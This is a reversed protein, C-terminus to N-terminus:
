RAIAARPQHRRLADLRQGAVALVATVIRMSPLVDRIDASVDGVDTIREFADIAGVGGGVVRACRIVQLAQVRQLGLDFSGIAVHGLRTADDGAM